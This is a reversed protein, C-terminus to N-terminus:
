LIEIEIFRERNELKHFSMFGEIVRLEREKSDVLFRDMWSCDILAYIHFANSPHLSDILTSM